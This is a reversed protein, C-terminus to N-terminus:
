LGILNFGKIEDDIFSKVKPGHKIFDQMGQPIIFNFETGNFKARRKNIINYFTFALEWEEFNFGYSACNCKLCPQIKKIDDIRFGVHNAKGSGNTKKIRESGMMYINTLGSKIGELMDKVEKITQENELKTEEEIFLMTEIISEVIFLKSKVSLKAIDLTMQMYVILDISKIPM